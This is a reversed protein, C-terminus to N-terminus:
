LCTSYLSEIELDKKTRKFYLFFFYFNFNMTHFGHSIHIAVPCKQLYVLAVKERNSTISIDSELNWSIRYQASIDAINVDKCQGIQSIRLIAVHKFHTNQKWTCSTNDCNVCHVVFCFYTMCICIYIKDSIYKHSGFLCQHCAGLGNARNASIMFSTQTSFPHSILTGIILKFDCHCSHIVKKELDCDTFQSRM